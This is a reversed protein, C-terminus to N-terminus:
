RVVFQLRQKMEWTTHRLRNLSEAVLHETFIQYIMGSAFIVYGCKPINFLSDCKPSTTLHLIVSMFGTVTLLARKERKNQIFTRFDSVGGDTKFPTHVPTASKRIGSSNDATAMSSHQTGVSFGVWHNFHTRSLYWIARGIQYMKKRKM